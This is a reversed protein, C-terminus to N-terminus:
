PSAKPRNLLVARYMASLILYSWTVHTRAERPADIPPATVGGTSAVASSVVATSRPNANHSSMKLALLIYAKRFSPVFTGGAASM